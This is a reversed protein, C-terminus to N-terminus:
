QKTAAFIFSIKVFVISYSNLKYLRFFVWFLWFHRVRHVGHIYKARAGAPGFRIRLGAGGTGPEGHAETTDDKVIRTPEPMM